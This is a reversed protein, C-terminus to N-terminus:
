TAAPGGERGEGWRKRRCVVALLLVSGRKALPLSVPSAGGSGEGREGERRIRKREGNEGNEGVVHLCRRGRGAAKRGRKRFGGGCGAEERKGRGEM